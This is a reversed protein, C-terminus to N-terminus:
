TSPEPDIAGLLELALTRLAVSRQYGVRERELQVLREESKRIATLHITVVKQWKEPDRDRDVSQCVRAAITRDEETLTYDM